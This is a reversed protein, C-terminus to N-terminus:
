LSSFISLKPIMVHLEYFLLMGIFTGEPAYITDINGKAFRNRGQELYLSIVSRTMVDGGLFFFFM